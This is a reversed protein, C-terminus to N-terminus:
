SQLALVNGPSDRVELLNEIGSVSSVSRVADLVDRLEDRLAYGRLTIRKNDAFVQIGKGHEVKEDLETCVRAALAHNTNNIPM